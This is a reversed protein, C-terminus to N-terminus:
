KSVETGIYFDDPGGNLTEGDQWTLGVCHGNTDCYILWQGISDKVVRYNSTAWHVTQGSDVATKIENLTM